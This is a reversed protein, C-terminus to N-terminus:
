RTETLLRCTAEYGAVFSYNAQKYIAAVTENYGKEYASSALKELQDSATKYGLDAAQQVLAPNEAAFKDFSDVNASATKEPTSVAQPLLRAIKEAAENTQAARMMFGDFVAAGFLNAEKVLKEHEAGALDSAVKMLDGAPSAASAVKAAPAPTGAQAEHLATRLTEATQASAVKESSGAPTVSLAAGATKVNEVKGLVRTLKM